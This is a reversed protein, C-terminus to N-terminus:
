DRAWKVVVKGSKRGLTRTSNQAVKFSFREANRDHQSSAALCIPYMAKEVRRLETVASAKM